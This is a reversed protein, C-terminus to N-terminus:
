RSEAFAGSADVPRLLIPGGEASDILFVEVQNRGPVFCGPNVLASWLGRRNSPPSEYTQTTACITGNIAIALRAVADPSTGAVRLTGVIQAPVFYSDPNVKEFDRVDFLQVNRQPAAEVKLAKIHAGVLERDPGVKFWGDFWAVKRTLSEHRAEVAWEDVARLERAYFRRTREDGAGEVSLLSHGDVAWPLSIGLLHAITPAIDVTSGKVDTINGEDQYPVKIFLPVLLLDALNTASIERRLDGPRFSVGHDATVM